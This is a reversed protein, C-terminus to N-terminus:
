KLFYSPDILLQIQHLRLMDLDEDFIMDVKYSFNSEQVQLTTFKTQGAVFGFQGGTNSNQSTVLRVGSDLFCMKRHNKVLVECFVLGEIKESIGLSNSFHLNFNDSMLPEGIDEFSFTVMKESKKSNFNSFLPNEGNRTLFPFATTNIFYFVREKGNHISLIVEFDTEDQLFEEISHYVIAEHRREMKTVFQSREKAGMGDLLNKKFKLAQDLYGFIIQSASIEFLTYLFATDGEFFVIGLNKNLFFNFVKTKQCSRLVERKDIDYKISYTLDLKRSRLRMEVEFRDFRSLPFRNIEEIKTNLFTLYNDHKVRYLYNPYMKGNIRVDLSIDLWRFLKDPLNQMTSNYEFLKDTKKLFFNLFGIKDKLYHSKVLHGLQSTDFIQHENVKRLNKFRSELRKKLIRWVLLNKSFLSDWQKSTLILQLWDNIGECAFNFILILAERPIKSALSPAGMEKKRINSRYRSSFTTKSTISKGSHLKNLRRREQLKNLASSRPNSKPPHSPGRTRKKKPRTTKKSGYEVMEAGIIKPNAKSPPHFRNRQRSSEKLRPLTITDTNRTNLTSISPTRPRRHGFPRNSRM